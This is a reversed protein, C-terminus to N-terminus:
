FVGIIKGSVVTDKNVVKMAMMSAYGQQVSLNALGIADTSVIPMYEGFLASNRRIDASKCSMVWKNPDQDPAVYIEFNDLSGAKYPGVTEGVDNGQYGDIMEMYALVNTGVTLRNPRALRTQQYISNAAQSLKLKFMNLYDSPVVSGQVVPAVDFNYQPKFTAADELIHFGRTNIEATLESIAAEKAVDELNNGWENQTVFASYLSWYNAIEYAEAVLNIEDLQLYGKAMSAGYQGTADPGVTENDYQYTVKVNNGDGAAPPTTLVVNGNSYDVTGKTDGNVDLLNGAGDDTLPTTIGNELTQVTVSGPLIPTYQAYMASYDGEGILENKVTRGTFNPDVGQRNVFPSSLVTGAAMEGKTNEAIYKFYPVLQQRSNMPVTGFVDAIVLEQVFLPMLEIFDPRAMINATNTAAKINRANQKLTNCLIRQERTLNIQKSARIPTRAYRNQALSTIKQGSARRSSTTAAGIYRRGPTATARRRQPQRARGTAKSAVVKRHKKKIM